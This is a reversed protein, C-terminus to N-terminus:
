KRATKALVALPDDALDTLAKDITESNKVATSEDAKPDTMAQSDIILMSDVTIISDDTTTTPKVTLADTKTPETVQRPDMSPSVFPNTPWIEPVSLSEITFKPVSGSLTYQGADGAHGHSKIVMVYDGSGLTGSFEAGLRDDPDVATILTMAGSVENDVRFLEMRLDLNAGGWLYEDGEDVDGDLDNDIGDGNLDTMDELVNAALQVHGGTTSFRFWDGAGGIAVRLALNNAFARETPEVTTVNVDFPAFDEAVWNWVDEIMDRELKSFSKYDDDLSFVDTHPRAYNSIVGMYEYGDFDLYLSHTAGPNSHFEPVVPGSLYSQLDDRADDLDLSSGPDAVIDDGFMM